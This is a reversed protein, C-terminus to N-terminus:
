AHQPTRAGPTGPNTRSGRRRPRSQRPIPTEGVTHRHIARDRINKAANTDAHAEHGCRICTFVAQSERNRVHTHGCQNCIRSTNKPDVRVTLMKQELRTFIEGWCSALIARTLAAKARARNPLYAGALEPDPKPTPKRTMSPIPLKEVGVGEFRKSIDTTVKEIFDKRRNRLRTHLTGLAALTRARGASDPVQRSLQRELALFRAKEGERLSPIHWMTGDDQAITNAVGVDIGAWGSGAPATRKPRPPTTLSLHWQGHHRKIRASTAAQAQAWPYTLKFRVWGAKPVLVQAWKGSLRKVKLDRVIFSQKPDKRAKPKPYRTRGEFFNTFARDLDRLAGQQIVTSGERLWDHERRLDTLDKAQRVYTPNNSHGRRLENWFSRQELGLNYLLRHHGLHMGFVAEQADNPHLRQKLSM